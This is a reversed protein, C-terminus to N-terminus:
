KVGTYSNSVMIVLTQVRMLTAEGLTVRSYLFMANRFLGTIRDGEPLSTSSHDTSARCGIALVTNVLACWVPDGVVLLSDYSEEFRKIFQHYDLIPYVSLRAYASRHKELSLPFTRVKPNRSLLSSLTLILPQYEIPLSFDSKGTVYTHAVSKSPLFEPNYVQSATDGLDLGAPAANNLFLNFQDTFYSSGTVYTIYEQGRRTAPLLVVGPGSPSFYM